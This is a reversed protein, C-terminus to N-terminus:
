RCPNPCRHQPPATAATRGRGPLGTAHRRAVVEDEEPVTRAGAGVSGPGPQHRRDGAEAAGCPGTRYCSVLPGKVDLAIGPDAIRWADEAGEQGQEADGSQGVHQDGSHAASPTVQGDELDNAHAPRLQQRTTDQCAVARVAAARMRPIGIPMRAQRQDQASNARDTPTSGLACTGARSTSASAAAARSTAMVVAATGPRAAARTRGAGTRRVSYVLGGRGGSGSVPEGWAWAMSLLRGIASAM